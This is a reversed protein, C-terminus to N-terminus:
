LLVVIKNLSILAQMTETTKEFLGKEVAYLHVGANRLCKAAMM